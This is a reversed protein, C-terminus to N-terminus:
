SASSRWYRLLLPAPSQTESYLPAPSLTMLNGAFNVTSRRSIARYTASAFMM